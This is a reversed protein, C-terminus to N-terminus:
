DLGDILSQRIKTAKINDDNGIIYFIEEEMFMLYNIMGRKTYIKGEAEVIIEKLLAEIDNYEVKKPIEAAQFFIDELQEILDDIKTM